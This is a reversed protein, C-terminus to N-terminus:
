KMPWHDFLPQKRGTFPDFEPFLVQAIDQDARPRENAKGYCMDPSQGKPYAGIVLLRSSEILKHAVGAPVIVMDGALVTVVSGQPGGFQVEAKGRAIGLVEHATSHYHHFNYIGNRWSSGWGSSAFAQEFGAAMDPHDAPFVQQYRLLPLDPNNPFDGDDTIRHATVTLSM